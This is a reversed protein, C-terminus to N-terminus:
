ESRGTAVTAIIHYSTFVFLCLAQIFFLQCSGYPHRAQAGGRERRRRRRGASNRRRSRTYCDRSPPRRTSSNTSSGGISVGGRPVSEERSFTSEQSSSVVDSTMKENSRLCLFRCGGDGHCWARSSHRPTATVRATAATTAVRGETKALTLKLKVDSWHASVGVAVHSM